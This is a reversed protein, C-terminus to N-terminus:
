HIGTAHQAALLDDDGQPTQPSLVDNITFDPWEIAGNNNPFRLRGRRVGEGMWSLMEERSARIRVPSCNLGILNEVRDEARLKEILYDAWEPCAPLGMTSSIVAWALDSRGNMVLVGATGNNHLDESVAITHRLPYKRGPIQLSARRAYATQGLSVPHETGEPFRVGLTLGTSIAALFAAMASDVAVFSLLHTRDQDAILHDCVANINTTSDRRRQVLSLTAFRLHANKM